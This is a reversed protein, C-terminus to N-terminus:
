PHAPRYARTLALANHELPFLRAPALVHLLVADIENAGGEHEFVRHEFAFVGPLEMALPAKEGDAM